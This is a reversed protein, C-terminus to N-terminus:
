MVPLVEMMRNKLDRYDTNVEPIGENKNNKADIKSKYGQGRCQM